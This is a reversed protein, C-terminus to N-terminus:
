SRWMKAFRKLIWPMNPKWSIWREGVSAGQTLLSFMRSGIEDLGFYREKTVSLIFLEKGVTRAMVDPALRVHQHHLDSM